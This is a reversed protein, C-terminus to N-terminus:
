QTFFLSKVTVSIPKVTADAAKATATVNYTKGSALKSLKVLISGQYAITNPYSTPVNITSISGLTGVTAGSPTTSDFGNWSNFHITEVLVAPAAADYINLDFSGPTQNTTTAGFLIQVTSTIPYPGETAMGLSSLEIPPLIAAVAAVDVKKVCSSLTIATIAILFTSIYRKMKM